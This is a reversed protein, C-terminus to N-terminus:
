RRVGFPGSEGLSVSFPVTSGTVLLLERDVDVACAAPQVDPTSAVGIVAGPLISAFSEIPTPKASGCAAGVPTSRWDGGACERSRACRASPARSMSVQGSQEDHRRHRVDAWRRTLGGTSGPRFAGRASVSRSREQRLLTPWWADPPRSGLRRERDACRTGDDLAVRHAPRAPRAGARLGPVQRDSANSWRSCWSRSVSSGHRSSWRMATRRAMASESCRSARVSSTSSRRVTSTALHTAASRWALFDRRVRRGIDIAATDRRRPLDGGLRRVRSRTPIRPVRVRELMSARLDVALARRRRSADLEALREPTYALRSGNDIAWTVAQGAVQSGIPARETEYTDLLRDDAWGDIVAALRWSLSIADTIGANM